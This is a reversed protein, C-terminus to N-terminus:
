RVCWRTTRRGPWPRTVRLRGIPVAPVSQMVGAVVITLAASIVIDTSLVALLVGGIIGGIIRGVNFGLFTLAM